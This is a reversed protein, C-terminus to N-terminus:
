YWHPLQSLWFNYAQRGDGYRSSIYKYGWDIQCQIDKAELGCGMKECPLAQFLGCAGSTSNKAWYRYIWEGTKPDRVGSEGRLLLLTENTHSGFKERVLRQVKHNYSEKRTEVTTQSYQQIFLDNYSFGLGLFPIM